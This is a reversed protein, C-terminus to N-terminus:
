TGECVYQKECMNYYHAKITNFTITNSSTDLCHKRLEQLFPMGGNSSSPAENKRHKETYYTPVYTTYDAVQEDGEDRGSPSNPKFEWIECKGSRAIICDPKTYNGGPFYAFSSSSIPVQCGYSSYLSAHMDDGYRNAYQTMLNNNGRWVGNNVLKNLRAEEKSVLDKLQVGRARTEDKAILKEIQPKLTALRELLPRMKAQMTSQLSAATQKAREDEGDEGPEFDTGCYAQWMTEMSQCDLLYTARAEQAWDAVARGLNDGATTSGRRLAEIAKNVINGNSGKLVEACADTTKKYGDEYTRFTEDADRQAADRIRSWEAESFSIAKARELDGREERMREDAKALGARVPEAISEALKPISVIGDPDDGNRAIADELERVKLRCKDPLPDMDHQHRKLDELDDIAERLQRIGEPWKDLFNKTERDTTPNRALNQLGRDINELLSKARDLSGTGSDESVNSLASALDAADRRLQEMLAKRGGASNGLRSLTERVVPHDVGRMLDECGRRAQEYDRQWQGYMSSSVRGVMSVLRSWPGDGRFDDADDALDELRDDHRSLESLERDVADRAAAALKPLETLGDPDDKSRYQEAQRTLEQNRETCLKVTAEYRKLGGKLDRLYRAADNWDDQVDDYYEAIRRATSDDGAVKGLDDAYRRAERVYNDARNIPDASSEGPLRELADSADELLDEIKRILDSREDARAPGHPRCVLALSLVAALAVWRPLKSFSAM